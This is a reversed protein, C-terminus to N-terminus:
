PLQKSDFFKVADSVLLIPSVDEDAIEFGFEAEFAMLLEICDLSDAGLDDFFSMHPQAKGAPLGLHSETIMAVRELTTM